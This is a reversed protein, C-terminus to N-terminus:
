REIFVEEKGFRSKPIKQRPDESSRFGVALLVRSALGLPGLGLIEDFQKPDFGEMPSADIGNEAAAALAMGLAIYVQRSAWDILEPQPRGITRMLSDKYGKLSELTTSQDKAVASLYHDVHAENLDTRVALVFLDSAETIQPQNGAVPRLKERLAPSAVHIFKWPQLGNSSPSLRLAEMIIERQEPTLKKSTDYRKTAYRWQLNKITNAMLMRLSSATEFVLM